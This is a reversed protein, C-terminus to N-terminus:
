KLTNFNLIYKLFKFYIKKIYKEKYFVYGSCCYLVDCLYFPTSLISTFTNNKHKLLM